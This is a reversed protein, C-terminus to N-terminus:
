MKSPAKSSVWLKQLRWEAHGERNRALAKEEGMKVSLTVLDRLSSTPLSTSTISNHWAWAKCSAKQPTSPQFYLCMIYCFFTCTLWTSPLLSFVAGTSVLPWLGFASTCIALSLHLSKWFCLLSTGLVPASPMFIVSSFSLVVERGNQKQRQFLNRTMLTSLMSCVSCTKSILITSSIVFANKFTGQKELTLNGPEASRGGGESLTWMKLLLGIETIKANASIFTTPFRSISSHGM